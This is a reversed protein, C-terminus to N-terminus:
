DRVAVWAAFNCWRWFCDIQVFGAGKLLEENWKATVPVLVGELSLRKRAIQEQTYGNEAKMTYYRDIMLADLDATAGLVKEVLILAGGLQTHEYIRRLIRQRHEIPTFQLTLVCLTVCARAPPYEVRLDCSRIDVLGAKIMGQFRERAADLMPESVDIGVYRNYAGFKQVFPALAEGRSCGLDVITGNDKVFACALEFVTRRMVDYQPISRQLMDDFVHAVDADFTWAGQPMVTDQM